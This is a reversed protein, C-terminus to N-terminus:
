KRAFAQTVDEIFSQRATHLFSLNPWYSVLLSQRKQLSSLLSPSPLPVDYGLEQFLSAEFITYAQLAKAGGLEKLSDCFHEYLGPVALREPLLHLCMICMLEMIRMAGPHHLLALAHGHPQDLKFLGLHEEIRSQWTVEVQSGPFFCTKRSRVLGKHRGHERTLLTLILGREALPKHHLVIGSDHWIM